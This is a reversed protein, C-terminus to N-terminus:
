LNSSFFLGFSFYRIKKMPNHEHKQLDMLQFNLKLLLFTFYYYKIILIEISVETSSPELEDFPNQPLIINHISLLLLM